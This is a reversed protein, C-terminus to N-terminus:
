QGHYFDALLMHDTTYKGFELHNFDVEKLKSHKTMTVKIGTM